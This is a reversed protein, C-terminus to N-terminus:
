KVYDEVETMLDFLQKVRIMIKISRTEASDQSSKKWLMVCIEKMKVIENRLPATSRLVKLLPHLTGDQLNEISLPTTDQESIIGYFLQRQYKLYSSFYMDVYKSDKLATIAKLGLKAFEIEPPGLIERPSQGLFLLDANQRDNAIPKLLPHTFNYAAIPMMLEVHYDGDTVKDASKNTDNMHSQSFSNEFVSNTADIPLNQLLLSPSSDFTSIGFNLLTKLNQNEIQLQALQASLLQNQGLAIITRAKEAQCGLCSGFAVAPLPASSISDSNKATDQFFSQPLPDSLDSLAHLDLICQLQSIRAELALVKETQRQRYSRQAELNKRKKETSPLPKLKRGANSKRARPQQPDTRNEMQFAKSIAVDSWFCKVYDEVETIKDFLQKVRAM